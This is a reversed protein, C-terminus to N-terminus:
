GERKKGRAESQADRGAFYDYSAKGVNDAVLCIPIAM